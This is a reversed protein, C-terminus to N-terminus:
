KKLHMEEFPRQLTLRAPLPERRGARSEAPGGATGARRGLRGPPSQESDLQVRAGVPSLLKHGSGPALYLQAGSPGPLAGGARAPCVRQASRVRAQRGPVPPARRLWGELPLSVLDMGLRGRCLPALCLLEAEWTPCGAAKM